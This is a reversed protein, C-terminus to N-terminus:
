WRAGRPEVWVGYSLAQANNAAKIDKPDDQVNKVDEANIQEEIKGKIEETTKLSESHKESLSDSRRCCKLAL